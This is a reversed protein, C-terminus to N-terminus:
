VRKIIPYSVNGEADAAIMLVRPKTSWVVYMWVPLWLGCMFVTLIAHMGNNVVGGSTMTATYPSQSQLHWGRNICQAIAQQLASVQAATPASPSLPDTV